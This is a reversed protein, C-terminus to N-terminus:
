MNNVNEEVGVEVLCFWVEILGNSEMSLVM